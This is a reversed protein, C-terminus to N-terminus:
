EEGIVKVELEKGILGEFPTGTRLQSSPVFGRLDMVEVLYKSDSM